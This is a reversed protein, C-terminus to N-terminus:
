RSKVLSQALVDVAFNAEIIAAACEVGIVAGVVALHRDADDDWAVVIVYNGGDGGTALMSNRHEAPATPSRQSSLAAINGDHEIERLVHGVDKLEVGLAPDSANLRANDEIMKAGGGLLVIQGETGIGGTVAPARESPHDAVVGAADM